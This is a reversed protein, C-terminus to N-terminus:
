AASRLRTTANAAHVPDIEFGIYPRGLKRAAALTTGGGAFLDVVLGHPSTLKEIYYAAEDEAQQWQHADKERPGEVVDLTLTQVDGRTGKVFWLLPKWQCIVGYRNMRQQSGPDLAACCWWYRLHKQCLALAEPLQTQGCYAIFSGGPRLIRASERAADEFLPISERDYPPDTFVLEVSEDAIEKALNRFDGVRLGDAYEHGPRSLVEAAAEERANHEVAALAETYKVPRRQKTKKAIYAEVQDKHKALKEARHAASTSIGARKLVEAKTVSKGDVPLAQRNHGGVGPATELEASIEGIRTIARLKIEAVWREMEIDNRQRAYAALAAAKDRIDKAEDVTSAIALARRAEDYKVLQTM